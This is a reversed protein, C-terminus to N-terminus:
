KTEIWLKINKLKHLISSQFDYIFFSFYSLNVSCFVHFQVSYIKSDYFKIIFGYSKWKSQQLKEEVVYRKRDSNSFVAHFNFLREILSNRIVSAILEIM